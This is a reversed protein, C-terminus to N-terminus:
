ENPRIRQELQLKILLDLKGDMSDQKEKATKVQEDLRVLVKAVEHYDEAMKAQKVIVDQLSEVKKNVDSWAMGAAFLATVLTPVPWHKTILELNM